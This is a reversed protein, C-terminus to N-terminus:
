FYYALTYQLFSIAIFVIIPSLDVGGMPSVHRRVRSLVPEILRDLIRMVSSVFQNHGNIVKFNILWSLIIWILLAFSYLSLVLSILYVIPHM